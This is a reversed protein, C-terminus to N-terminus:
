GLKNKKKEEQMALGEAVLDDWFKDDAFVSEGSELGEVLLGNLHTKAQRRQDERILAQVYEVPNRKGNKSLEEVYSQLDDPLPINLSTM